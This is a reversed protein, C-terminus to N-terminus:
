MVEVMGRLQERITGASLTPLTVENRPNWYEFTEPVRGVAIVIM